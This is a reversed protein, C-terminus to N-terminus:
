LPNPARGGIASIPRDAAVPLIAARLQWRNAAMQFEFLWTPIKGGVLIAAWIALAAGGLLLSSFILAPISLPLRLLAKWRSQLDPDDVGFHIPYGSSAEADKAM